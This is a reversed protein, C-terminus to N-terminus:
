GVMWQKGKVGSDDITSKNVGGDDMTGEGGGGWEGGVEGVTSKNM